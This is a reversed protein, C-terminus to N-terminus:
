LGRLTNLFKEKTKIDEVGHVEIGGYEDISIDGGQYELDLVLTQPSKGITTGGLIDWEENKLWLMVKKVAERQEPTATKSVRKKINTPLSIEHGRNKNTAELYQKFLNM